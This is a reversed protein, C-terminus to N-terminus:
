SLFSIIPRPIHCLTSRVKAVVERIPNQSSATLVFDGPGAAKLVLKVLLSPSSCLFAFDLHWVYINGHPSTHLLSDRVDDEVTQETSSANSVIHTRDM